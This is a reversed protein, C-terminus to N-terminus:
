QLDSGTKELLAVCEVHHPPGSPTFARGETRWPAGPTPQDCVVATEHKAEPWRPPAVYTGVTHLSMKSM